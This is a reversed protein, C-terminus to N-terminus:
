PLQVKTGLVRRKQKNPNVPKDPKDSGSKSQEIRIKPKIADLLSSASSAGKTIRQFYQDFANWEAQSKAQLEDRKVGAEFAPMSKQMMKSELAVKAANNNQLKQTALAAAKNAENLGVQSDVAEIEKKLRRTEIASSIGKSLFDEMQPAVM